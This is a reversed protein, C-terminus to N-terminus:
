SDREAIHLFPLMAKAYEKRKERLDHTLLHRVWYLYFSRFSISDYLHLLTMSHAVHLTESISYASEFLSKDLVALIKIDLDDLPPIGTHIEDHLDQRGFQVETIWFQITRLKDAHKDFQAQLRDAIDRIDIGENLLFGIILRQDYKM